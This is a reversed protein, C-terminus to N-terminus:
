PTSKGKTPNLPITEDWREGHQDLTPVLPDIPEVKVKWLQDPQEELLRCTLHDNDTSKLICGPQVSLQGSKLGVITTGDAEHGYVTVQTSGSADQFWLTNTLMYTDNLVLLDGPHFSDCISMFVTHEIKSASRDLVIMRGSDRSKGRLAVPDHPMVRSEVNFDFEETKM